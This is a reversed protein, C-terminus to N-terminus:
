KPLTILRTPGYTFVLNESAEVKGGVRSVDALRMPLGAPSRALTSAFNVNGQATRIATLGHGVTTRMPTSFQRNMLVDLIKQTDLAPMNNRCVWGRAGLICRRNGVQVVGFSVWPGGDIKTRGEYMARGPGQQEITYQSEVRPQHARFANAHMSGKVVYSRTHALAGLAGGHLPHVKIGPLSPSPHGLARRLAPAPCGSGAAPVCANHQNSWYREVTVGALMTTPGDGANECIDSAEGNKFIKKPDSFSFQNNEIWGLGVLPDTASEVLEHSVNDILGTVGSPGGPHSACDIPTVIFPVTQYDVEPYPAFLAWGVRLESVVTFFHFAGFDGCSNISGLGISAGKPMFIVYDTNDDALPLGDVQPVGEIGGSGPSETDAWVGGGAECTIWFMLTLMSVNGSGSTGPCVLAPAAVDGGTLTPDGVGYEAADSLYGSNILANLGNMVNSQAFGPDDQDWSRDWFLAHVAPQQIVRGSIGPLFNTVFSPLFSLGLLNAATFRNRNDDLHSGTVPNPTYTFMLANSSGEENTVRVSVAGPQAGASPPVILVLQTNSRTCITSVLQSGFQVSTDFGPTLNTGTITVQTGGSASGSSSSISTISPPTCAGNCYIFYDPVTTKSWGGTLNMDIYPTKVRVDVRGAAHAPTKAQLTTDSLVKVGTAAKGGIDVQPPDTPDPVYTGDITIKVTTGGASSGARPSVDTVTTPIDKDPPDVKCNPWDACKAELSAAPLFVGLATLGLLLGLWHIRRRATCLGSLNRRRDGM